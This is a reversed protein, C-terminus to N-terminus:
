CIDKIIFLKGSDEYAYAEQKMEDKCEEIVEKFIDIICDAYDGSAFVTLLSEDFVKGKYCSLANSIYWSDMGFDMLAGELRSLFGHYDVAVLSEDVVAFHPIHLVIKSDLRYVMQM